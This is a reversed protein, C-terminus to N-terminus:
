SAITKRYEIDIRKAKHDVISCFAGAMTRIQAKAVIHTITTMSKSVLRAIIDQRQEDVKEESAAQRWIYLGEKLHALKKLVIRRLIIHRSDIEEPDEIERHFRRVFREISQTNISGSTGSHELM